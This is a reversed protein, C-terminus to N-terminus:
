QNSCAAEKIETHGDDYGVVVTDAIGVFLGHDVVGTIAKLEEALVAPNAIKGFAADVIYNGNDTVYREAGRMRTEFPVSYRRELQKLTWEYCFPVI